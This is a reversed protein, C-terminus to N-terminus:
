APGSTEIARVGPQGRLRDMIAQLRSRAEGNAPNMAVVRQYDEVAADIDGRMLYLDGRLVYAAEDKPALKIAHDVSNLAETIRQGRRLLVAARKYMDPEPALQAAKEVKEAAAGFDQVCELAFSWHVLLVRDVKGRRDLDNLMSLAAPCKRESVLGHVLHAYARQKEPAKAVVDAWLASESGWLRNRQHSALSAVLVIVTATATLAARSRVNRVLVDSLILAFGFLPLYLRHEAIPDALPVFSSTPALFVLFVLIGFTAVPYRRRLMWAAAALAIVATLGILTWANWASKVWHIDYDITQGAPFVCLGIYRLFVACETWFYDIPHSLGALHFGASASTCVLRWVSVGAICAAAVLPVYLRANRRLARFGDQDLSWGVDYAVLIVPLIATHEKSLVAGLYLGLIGVARRWGIAGPPGCIFLTLAGLVFTASLTESRGAIYAVSETAIPHLLFLSAAFISACERRGEDLASRQFLRRIIIVYILGSNILHFLLGLVHYSFTDRGSLKYNFWFSAMLLPRVGATWAESEQEFLAKYYPLNFDDFVFPGHLAPGYTLFAVFVLSAALAVPYWWKWSRKAEVEVKFSKCSKQSKRSKMEIGRAILRALLQACKLIAQLSRGRGSQKTIGASFGLIFHLNWPFRRIPL